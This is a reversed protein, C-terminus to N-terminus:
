GLIFVLKESLAFIHWTWNNSVLNLGIILKEM